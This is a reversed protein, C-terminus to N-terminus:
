KELESDDKKEHFLNIRAIMHKLECKTTEDVEDLLLVNVNEVITERHGCNMIHSPNEEEM